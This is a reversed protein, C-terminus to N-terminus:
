KGGMQLVGFLIGGKSWLRVKGNWNFDEAMFEITEMTDARVYLPTPNDPKKITLLFPLNEEEEHTVTYTTGCDGIAKQNLCKPFDQISWFLDDMMDDPRFGKDPDSSFSFQKDM